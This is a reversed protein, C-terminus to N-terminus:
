AEKAMDNMKELAKYADVEQRADHLKGDSGVYLYDQRSEM